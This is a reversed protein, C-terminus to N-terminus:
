AHGSRHQSKGADLADFQAFYIAAIQTWTEVAQEVTMGEPRMSWWAEIFGAIAGSIAARQATDPLLGLVPALKRAGIAMCEIQKRVDARAVDCFHKGVGENYPAVLNEYTDDKWDVRPPKEDGDSM